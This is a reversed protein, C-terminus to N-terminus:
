GGYFRRVKRREEEDANSGTIFGAGGGLIAGLPGALFAGVLGGLIAGGISAGLTPEAKVDERRYTHTQGDYPCKVTFPEYIQSRREVVLSLYIRQNTRPCVVYLRM